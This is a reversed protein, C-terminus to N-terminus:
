SAILITHVLIVTVDSLVGPRHRFDMPSFIQGHRDGEIRHIARNDQDIAEIYEASLRIAVASRQM